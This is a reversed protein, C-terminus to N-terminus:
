FITLYKNLVSQYPKSVVSVNLKFCNVKAFNPEEIGTRHCTDSEALLLTCSKSFGDDYIVGFATFSVSSIGGLVEMRGCECLWLVSEPVKKSKTPFSANYEGDGGSVETRGELDRLFSPPLIYLHPVSLGNTFCRIPRWCALCIWHM